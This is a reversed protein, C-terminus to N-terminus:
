WVTVGALGPWWLRRKREDVAYKAYIKNSLQQLVTISEYSRVDECLQSSKQWYIWYEEEAQEGFPEFLTKEKAKHRYWPTKLFIQYTQDFRQHLRVQQAGHWREPVHSSPMLLFRPAADRNLTSISGDLRPNRPLHCISMPSQDCSRFQQVKRRHTSRRNTWVETQCCRQRVQNSKHADFLCAQLHQRYPM